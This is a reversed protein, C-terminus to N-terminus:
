SESPNSHLYINVIKIVAYWSSGIKAAYSYDFSRCSNEESARESIGSFLRELLASSHLLQEEGAAPSCGGVNGLESCQMIALVQETQHGAINQRFAPRECGDIRLEFNVRRLRSFLAAVGRVSTPAAFPFGQSICM